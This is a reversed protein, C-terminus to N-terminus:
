KWWNKPLSSKIQQNPLERVAVVKDGYKLEFRWFILRRIQPDKLEQFSPAARLNTPLRRAYNRLINNHKFATERGRARECSLSKIELKGESDRAVYHFNAEPLKVHDLIHSILSYSTKLTLAKKKGTAWTLSVANIRCEVRPTKEKPLPKEAIKLEEGKLERLASTRSVKPTRWWNDAVEVEASNQRARLKGDLWIEIRYAVGHSRDLLFFKKRYTTSDIEPLKALRTPDNVRVNQYLRLGRGGKRDEELSYVRILPERIRERKDRIIVGLIKGTLRKHNYNAFLTIRCNRDEWLITKVEILKARSTKKQHSYYIWGKEVKIIEVNDFKTGDWFELSEALVAFGLLLVLISLFIRM